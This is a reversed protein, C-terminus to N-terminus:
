KLLMREWSGRNTNAFRANGKGDNKGQLTRGSSSHEIFIPVEGKLRKLDNEVICTDNICLKQCNNKVTCDKGNTGPDGKPGPDGKSGPSGPDGKPGTPGTPGRPGTDGKLGAKELDTLDAFTGGPDGKPGPPGQLDGQLAIERCNVTENSSDIECLQALKNLRKGSDQSTVFPEVNNPISLQPINDMFRRTVLFSCNNGDIDCVQLKKPDTVNIKINGDKEMKIKTKKNGGSVNPGKLMTADDSENKELINFVASYNDDILKNNHTILSYVDNEAIDPNGDVIADGKESNKLLNTHTTLIENHEDAKGKLQQENNDIDGFTKQLKSHKYDQEKNYINEFSNLENKINLLFYTLVIITIAILVSNVVPVM